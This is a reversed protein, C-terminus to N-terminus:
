KGDAVLGRRLLPDLYQLGFNAFIDRGEAMYARLLHPVAKAEQGADLLLIGINM